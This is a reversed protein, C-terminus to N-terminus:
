WFPLKKLEDTGGKANQASENQIKQNLQRCEIYSIELKGKNSKKLESMNTIELDLLAIFM